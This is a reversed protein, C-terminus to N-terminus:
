VLVLTEADGLCALVVARRAVARMAAGALCLGVILRGVPLVNGLARALREAALRSRRGLLRRCPGAQTDLGIRLLPGGRGHGHGIAPRCYPIASLYDWHKMLPRM